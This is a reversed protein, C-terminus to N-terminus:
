RGRFAPGLPGFDHIKMRLSDEHFRMFHRRCKCPSPQCILWDAKDRENMGSPYLDHIMDDSVLGMEFMHKGLFPATRLLTCHLYVWRRYCEMARAEQSQNQSLSFVRLMWKLELADRGGEVLGAAEHGLLFTTALVHGLYRTVPIVYEGSSSPILSPRSFLINKLIRRHLRFAFTLKQLAKYILQFSSSLINVDESDILTQIMVNEEIADILHSVPGNLPHSAFSLYTNLCKLRSLVSPLTHCHLNHQHQHEQQKGNNRTKPNEEEVVYEKILHSTSLYEDNWFHRVMLRKRRRDLDWLSNRLSIKSTTGYTLVSQLPLHSLINSIIEQPLSDQM